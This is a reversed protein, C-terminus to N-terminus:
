SAISEKVQDSDLSKLFTFLLGIGVLIGCAIFLTTINYFQMLVGSLLGGTFAGFFRFSAYVGIVTDRDQEDVQRSVLSPLLAELLHFRTFDVCLLVLLLFYSHYAAALCCFVFAMVLTSGVYIKKLKTPDASPRAFPEM